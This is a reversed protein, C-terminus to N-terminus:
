KAEMRDRRKARLRNLQEYFEKNDVLIIKKDMVMEKVSSAFVGKSILAAQTPKEQSLINQFDNFIEITIEDRSEFRTIWKQQKKGTLFIDTTSESQKKV